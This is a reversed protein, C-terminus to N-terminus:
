DNQASNIPTLESCHMCHIVSSKCQLPAWDETELNDLSTDRDSEGEWSQGIYDFDSRINTHPDTTREGEVAGWSKSASEPWDRAEGRRTNWGDENRGNLLEVRIHM